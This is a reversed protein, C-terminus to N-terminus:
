RPWCPLRPSITAKFDLLVGSITICPPDEDFSKAVDASALLEETSITVLVPQVAVSGIGYKSKHIILVPRSQIYM